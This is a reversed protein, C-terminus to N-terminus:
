PWVASIYSGWRRLFLRRDAWNEEGPTRTANELHVVPGADVIVVEFGFRRIVLCLDVDQCEAAYREDFGGAATFVETPVMLAAGTAAIAEWVRGPEHTVPGGAGPHYCLGELEGARFVDIGLHQASGDPFDLVLGVAGVEPRAFQDVMALLPAVSDLIVDNNLFIIHDHEVRGGVCLNNAASFQYELDRVVTVVPSVTDYLELVAPDTSGTDGVIVQLGLGRDAFEAAGGELVRVLPVILEPKDLNLIVVSLGPESGAPGVRAPHETDAIRGMTTSDLYPALRDTATRAPLM